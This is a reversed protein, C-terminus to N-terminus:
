SELIFRNNLPQVPRANMPFIKTFKDLQAKSAYIPEELIVWRVSKSCPPTTLSGMYRYSRHDTPFLQNINIHGGPIIHEPGKHEPFNDWIPDLIQNEAGEQIFVSLVALEKKSNRHVFHAEMPYREGKVTHESPHHFHFQALDFRDNDVYVYNGPDSRLMITHGNNVIRLASLHYNFDFKGLNAPIAGEINIPSQQEGIACAKYDPSLEGWLGPGDKGDYEWHPQNENAIAAKLSPFGLSFAAGATSITFYKLLSRRDM